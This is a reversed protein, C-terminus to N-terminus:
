IFQYATGFLFRANELYSGHKFDYYNSLEVAGTSSNDSFSFKKIYEIYDSIDYKLFNPPANEMKNKFFQKLKLITQFFLKYCRLLSRESLEFSEDQFCDYLYDLISKGSKNHIERYEVIQVLTDITAAYYPIM